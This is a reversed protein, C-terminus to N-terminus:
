CQESRKGTSQLIVPLPRLVCPNSDYKLEKLKLQKASHFLCKQLKFDSMKKSTDSSELASALLLLKRSDEDSLYLAAHKELTSKSINKDEEDPQNGSSFKSLTADNQFSTRDGKNEFIEEALTVTEKKTPSAVTGTAMRESKGERQDERWAAPKCESETNLDNDLNCFASSSDEEAGPDLGDESGDFLSMKEMTCLLEPHQGQLFNGVKTLIQALRKVEEYMEFEMKMSTYKVDTALTEMPKRPVHYTGNDDGPIDPNPGVMTAMFAFHHEYDQPRSHM